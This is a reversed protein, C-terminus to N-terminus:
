PLHEKDPVDDWHIEDWPIPMTGFKGDAQQQAWRLLGIAKPSFNDTISVVDQPPAVNEVSNMAPLPLRQEHLLTGVICMHGPGANYLCTDDAMSFPNVTSRKGLDLLLAKAERYHIM